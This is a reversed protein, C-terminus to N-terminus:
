SLLSTILDLIGRIIPLAVLLIMVKGALEVRSAIANEGADRCIQGGFDAIYAIGVIKLVSTTYAPAIGAQSALDRLVELILFLKPIILAFIAVGAILALQIALEPRQQRLLVLLVVSVIGFAVIQVIELHSM